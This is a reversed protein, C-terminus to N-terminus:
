GGGFPSVIDDVVQGSTTDRYSVEADFRGPQSRETQVRVDTIMDDDALVGYARALEARLQDLGDPSDGFEVILHLRSGADPDGPWEDQHHEVQCSVAPRADEVEVFWGDDSDVLDGTTPDTLFALGGM